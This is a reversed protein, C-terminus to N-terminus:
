KNETEIGAYFNKKNQKYKNANMLVEFLNSYFVLFM